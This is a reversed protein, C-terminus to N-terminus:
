SRGEDLAARVEEDRLVVPTRERLRRAREALEDETAARHGLGRELLVTAEATISRRNAAAARKLAEYLDDPLAKITLNAMSLPPEPLPKCAIRM